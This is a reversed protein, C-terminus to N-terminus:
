RRSLSPLTASWDAELRGATQGYDAEMSGWLQGYDAGWHAEPGDGTQVGTQRWEAEFSGM